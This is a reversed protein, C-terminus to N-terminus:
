RSNRHITALYGHYFSYENAYWVDWAYSGDKAVYQQRQHLAVHLDYTVGGNTSSLALDPWVLIRDSQFVKLTKAVWNAKASELDSPNTGAKYTAYSVTYPYYVALNEDFEDAPGVQAPLPLSSAESGPPHWQHWVVHPVQGVMKLAPRVGAYYDGTNAGSTVTFPMTAWQSPSSGGPWWSSQADTGTLVRYALSYTYVKYFPKAEYDQLREWMVYAWGDGVDIAPFGDVEAKPINPDVWLGPESLQKGLPSGGPTWYATFLDAPSTVNGRLRFYIGADASTGGYNEDWTVYVRSAGVAIAPNDQDYAPNYYLSFGSVQEPLTGWYGGVRNNYWITGVQSSDKGVWVVHPVGSLDVAIDPALRSVSQNECFAGPCTVTQNIQAYGGCTGAALDCRAYRIVGAQTISNERVWVVHAIQGSLAVAPQYHVFGEREGVEPVVITHWADGAGRTWAMKVLGNNFGAANSGEAWVVVVTDALADIDAGGSDKDGSSSVNQHFPPWVTAAGASREPASSPALGVLGDDASVARVHGQSLAVGLALALLPLALIFTLRLSRV